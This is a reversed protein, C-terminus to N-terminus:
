SIIREFDDPFGREKREKYIRKVEARVEEPPNDPQYKKRHHIACQKPTKIYQEAAMARDCAETDVGWVKYHPVAAVGGHYQIIFDRRMTYFISYKSKAWWGANMGVFGYDPLYKNVEDLWGPLFEMDDSAIVYADYDPAAKLATNWAYACGAQKQECVVVAAGYQLGLWHAQIDNHERAIVAKVEPATAKLSQLVEWLGDPRYLTPILAAIKM